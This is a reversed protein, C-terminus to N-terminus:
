FDKELEAYDQGVAVLLSGYNNILEGFKEYSTRFSEINAVYREASSGTWATKLDEVITYIQKVQEQFSAADNQIAKGYVIVEEPNININGNM